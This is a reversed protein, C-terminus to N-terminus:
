HSIVLWGVNRLADARDLLRSSGNTTFPQQKVCCDGVAVVYNAGLRLAPVNHQQNNQPVLGRNTMNEAMKITWGQGIYPPKPREGHDISWLGTSYRRLESNEPGLVIEKM